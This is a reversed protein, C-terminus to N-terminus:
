LRRTRAIESRRPLVPGSRRVAPGASRKGGVPPRIVRQTTVRRRLMLGQGDASMAGNGFTAGFDVSLYQATSPGPTLRRGTGGLRGAAGVGRRRTPRGAWILRWAM